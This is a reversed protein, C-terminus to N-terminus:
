RFIFYKCFKFDFHIILINALLHYTAISTKYLASKHGWESFDKNGGWTAQATPPSPPPIEANQMRMEAKNEANQM